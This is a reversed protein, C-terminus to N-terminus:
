KVHPGSRFLDAVGDLYSLRQADPLPIGANQRTRVAERFRAQARRPWTSVVDEYGNPWLDPRCVICGCGQDTGPRGDRLVRLLESKRQRIEEVLTDPLPASARLRLTEGDVVVEGGAKEVRELLAAANM